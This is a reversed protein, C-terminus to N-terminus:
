VPQCTFPDVQFPNMEYPSPVTCKKGNKKRNMEQWEGRYHLLENGLPVHNLASSVPHQTADGTGLVDALVLPVPQMRCGLQSGLLEFGLQQQQSGLSQQRRLAQRSQPDPSAVSALRCSGFASHLHQLPQDSPSPSTLCAAGQAGSWRRAAAAAPMGVPVLGDRGGGESPPLPAVSMGNLLLAPLQPTPLTPALVQGGGFQQPPPRQPLTPLPLPPRRPPRGATRQSASPLLPAGGGRASDLPHSLGSPQTPVAAASGSAAESGSSDDGRSGLALGNVSMRRRGQIGRWREVVAGARSGGRIAGGHAPPPLAEGVRGLPRGELVAMLDDDVGLLHPRHVHPSSQVRRPLALGRHVRNGGVAVGGGIGPSHSPSLGRVRAGHHPLPLGGRASFPSGLLAEPLPPLAAEAASAPSAVQLRRGLRRGNLGPPLAHGVAAAGTATAPPAGTRGTIGTGGLQENGAMSDPRDLALAAAAAARSEAARAAAAAASSRRVRQHAIETDPHGGTPSEAWEVASSSATAQQQQQHRHEPDTRETSSEAATFLATTFVAASVEVVRQEAVGATIPATVLPVPPTTPAAAASTVLGTVLRTVIPMM